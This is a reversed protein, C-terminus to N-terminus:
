GSEHVPAASGNKKGACLEKYLEDGIAVGLDIFGPGYKRGTPTRFTDKIKKLFEMGRPYHSIFVDLPIDRFSLMKWVTRTFNEPGWRFKDADYLCDSLLLDAHDKRRDHTGFAEHNAIALCIEDIDTASFPYAELAQRAFVAGAAAHDKQKRRIDHLLAAAHAMRLRHDRIQTSQRVRHDEILILAGADLAVERVHILGHGFDNEINETVLEWIDAVVPDHCLFWRSLEVQKSFDSYFDPEPYRAAIRMAQQQLKQYVPKMTM